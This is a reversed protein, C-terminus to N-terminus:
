NGDRKSYKEITMNVNKSWNLEVMFRVYDDDNKLHYIEKTKESPMIGDFFRENIEWEGSKGKKLYHRYIQDTAIQKLKEFSLPTHIDKQYYERPLVLGAGRFFYWEGKIKVGYFYDIFDANSEEYMSQKLVATLLKTGKTNICILSDLLWEREVNYYKIYDIQNDIWNNISDIWNKYIFDYEDAKIISKSVQFANNRITNIEKVNYEKYQNCAYM